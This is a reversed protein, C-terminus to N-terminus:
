LGLVDKLIADIDDQIGPSVNGLKRTALSQMLCVIKDVRVLSDKKLGTKLFDSRKQDILYDTPQPNATNSTILIFLADQNKKNYKDVSIVVAPRVKIGQLSSFPYQILVIDGRKM